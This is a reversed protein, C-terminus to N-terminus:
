AAPRPEATVMSQSAKKLVRKAREQVALRIFQSHSIQECDATAHLLSVLQEGAVLNLVKAM